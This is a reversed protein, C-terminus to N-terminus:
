TKGQYNSSKAIIGLYAVNKRLVEMHNIFSNFLYTYSLSTM